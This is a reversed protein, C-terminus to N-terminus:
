TLSLGPNLDTWGLNMGLFLSLWAAYWWQCYIYIYTYTYIYIDNYIVLTNKAISFSIYSGHDLLILHLGWSGTVGLNFIWRVQSRIIHGFSSFGGHVFMKITYSCRHVITFFPLLGYAVTVTVITSQNIKRHFGAMKKPQGFEWIKDPGPGHFWRHIRDGRGLRFFPDWPKSLYPCTGSRTFM